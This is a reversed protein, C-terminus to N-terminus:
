YKPKDQDQNELIDIVQDIGIEKSREFIWDVPVAFTQSILQCIRKLLIENKIL